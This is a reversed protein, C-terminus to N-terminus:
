VVRWSLACARCWWQRWCCHHHFCQSVRVEWLEIMFRTCRSMEHTEKLCGPEFISGCGSRSVVVLQLLSPFVGRDIIGDTDELWKQGGQECEKIAPVLCLKIKDWWLICTKQKGVVEKVGYETQVMKYTLGALTQCLTVAIGIHISTTTVILKGGCWIPSVGIM